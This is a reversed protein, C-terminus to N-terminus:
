VYLGVFGVATGLQASNGAKMKSENKKTILECEFALDGFHLRDGPFRKM